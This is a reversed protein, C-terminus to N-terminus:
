SPTQAPEGFQGGILGATRAALQNLQPLTAGPPALLSWRALEDAGLQRDLEAVHGAAVRQVGTQPATLYRGNVIVM